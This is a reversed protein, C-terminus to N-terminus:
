PRKRPWYEDPLIFAVHKVGFVVNIKLRCGAIAAGDVDDNRLAEVIEVLESVAPVRNQPNKGGHVGLDKVGVAIKFRVM